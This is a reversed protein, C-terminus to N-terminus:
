FYQGKTKQRQSNQINSTSSSKFGSIGSNNQPVNETTHQLIIFAFCM